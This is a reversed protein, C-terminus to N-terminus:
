KLLGVENRLAVVRGSANDLDVTRVVENRLAVGPTIPVIRFTPLGRTASQPQVPRRIPNPWSYNVRPKQAAVKLQINFQNVWTQLGRQPGGPVPWSSQRFPLQDQGILQIQTPRVYTPPGRPPGLPVPWLVPIFPNATVAPATLAISTSLVWSPTPQQAGRPVPWAVPIFPNQAAVVATLAIPTSLVWGPVPQQAGRPVPWNFNPHGALGFFQDQGILQTQASRFYPWLAPNQQPGKPVPWNLQRFPLQDQGILQQQISQTYSTTPNPRGRPIPWNSQSFPNAAVAKINVGQAIWNAPGGLTASMAVSAAGSARNAAAFATNDIYLQTNNVAVFSGAADCFFQAVVANGTASSITISPASSAGTIDETNAGAFSSTGGVQSVGTWSTAIAAFPATGTQNIALTKNGSTPAVLSYVQVQIPNFSFHGVADTFSDVLSMTQNTGGNDWVVSITGAASLRFAIIVVLARNAGSGVTLTTDTLSGSGAIESGAADFAVAM